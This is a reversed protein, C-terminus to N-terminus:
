VPQHSPEVNTKGYGHEKQIGALLINYVRKSNRLPDGINRSRLHGIFIAILSMLIFASGVVLFALPIGIIPAIWYAIGIGILLTGCFGLLISVAVIVVTIVMHKVAMSVDQHLVEAQVTVADLGAGFIAQFSQFLNSFNISRM